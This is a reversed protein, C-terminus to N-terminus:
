ERRADPPVTAETREQILALLRECHRIHGSFRFARVRRRHWDRRVQGRRGAVAQWRYVSYFSEVWGLLDVQATMQIGAIAEWPLQRWVLGWRRVYLGDDDARVEPLLTFLYAAGLWCLLGLAVQAVFAPPQLWRYYEWGALVFLGIGSSFLLIPVLRRAIATTATSPYWFREPQDSM